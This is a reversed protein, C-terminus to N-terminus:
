LGLRVRNLFMRSEEDPGGYSLRVIDEIPFVRRGDEYGLFSIEEVEVHDDSYARVYGYIVTGEENHIGAIINKESCFALLKEMELSDPAGRGGNPTLKHRELLLQVSQMYQTGFQVRMVKDLTGAFVGWNQGYRDVRELRFNDGDIARIFGVEFADPEYHVGVLEERDYCQYLVQRIREFLESV